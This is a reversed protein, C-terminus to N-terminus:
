GEHGLEPLPLVNPLKTEAEHFSSRNINNRARLQLLRNETVPTNESMSWRGSGSGEQCGRGDVRPNDKWTAEPPLARLTNAFGAAPNAENLNTRGPRLAVVSTAFPTSRVRSFPCVSDNVGHWRCFAPGHRGITPTSSQNAWARLASPGSRRWLQTVEWSRGVQPRSVPESQMARNLGDLWVRLSNGLVNPCCNAPHNARCDNLARSVEVPPYQVHGRHIESCTALWRMRMLRWMCIGARSRWTQMGRGCRSGRRAIAWGGVCAFHVHAARSSHHARRGTGVM